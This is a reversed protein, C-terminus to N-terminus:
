KGTQNYAVAFDKAFDAIKVKGMVAPRNRFYDEQLKGAHICANMEVLGAATHAPMGAAELGKQMQEDTIVNWKLGPIGIAAGLVAAVENCTPEDSAVYRVSRGQRPTEFEDAVAAAIDTPAVWPLVDEAGYNAAMAGDRKIRIISAYLNYYFSVPRMHTLAIGTIQKLVNEVNYHGLIRGSEKELHAGISSLHIVRQVGSARIAQAYSNGVQKYHELPDLTKDTYYNPPVMCYVGDAGTFTETLFAVDTISGIAATAGLAEIASQKEPNSSIVTVSHGKEVLEATLPKSINGLSGTLVIKM